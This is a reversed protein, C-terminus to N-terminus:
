LKSKGVEAFKNIEEIMKSCAGWSAQIGFGGFGYLHHLIIREKRSNYHDTYNIEMRVGSKRGPRSASYEKVIDIKLDKLEEEMHYKCREIIERSIKPDVQLSYDDKIKTGGLVVTGDGKPIMYCSKNDDGTHVIKSNIIHPARILVVQGRIPYM